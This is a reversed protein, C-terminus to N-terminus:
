LSVEHKWVPNHVSIRSGFVSALGSKNSGASSSPTHEKSSKGSTSTSDRGNTRGNLKSSIAGLASLANSQLHPHGALSSLATSSSVRSLNTAVGKIEKDSEETPDRSVFENQEFQVVVYPRAKSSRVNLGRASILKVHIQGKTPGSQAPAASNSNSSASSTASTTSSANSTISGNASVSSSASASKAIGSPPQNATSAPTPQQQLSSPPQQSPANSQQRKPPPPQQMKFVPAHLSLSTTPQAFSGGPTLPGLMTAQYPQPHPHHSSSTLDAPAGNPTLTAPASISPSLLHHPTNLLQHHFPPPQGATPTHLGSHLPSHQQQQTSQNHRASFSGASSTSLSQLNEFPNTREQGNPGARPTLDVPTSPWFKLMNDRHKTLISHIFRHAHQRHQTRSDTHPSPPPQPLSPPRSTRILSNDAPDDGCNEKESDGGDSPRGRSSLINPEYYQWYEDYDASATLATVSSALAPARLPRCKKPRLSRRRVSACRVDECGDVGGPGVTVCMVAAM